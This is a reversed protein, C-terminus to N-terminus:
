KGILQYVPGAVNFDLIVSREDGNMFDERAPHSAYDYLGFDVFGDGMDTSWGVIAGISTKPYGLAHLVDNLLLWGQRQLKQNAYDQQATLFMKNYGSDRSWERATEDFFRAYPAAEVDLTEIKGVEKGDEDMVILEKKNYRLEKEKEEGIEAIVRKRYTDFARETMTLAGALATNRKLLMGHGGAIAAISVVGVVVAPGYLVVLDMGGHAVIKAKQVSIAKKDFVAVGNVELTKNEELTELADQTKAATSHLKLTARSAMVAATVVGVVGIVTLATPSVNKLKLAAQYVPKLNLNM